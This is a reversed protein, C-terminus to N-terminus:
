MLILRLGTKQYNWGYLWKNRVKNKAVVPGIKVEWEIVKVKITYYLFFSFISSKKSSFGRIVVWKRFIFSSSNWVEENSDLGRDSRRGDNQKNTVTIDSEQITTKEKETMSVKTNSGDQRFSSAGIKKKLVFPLSSSHTSVLLFSSALLLLCVTTALNKKSIKSTTVNAVKERREAVKKKKMKCRWTANSRKKRSTM